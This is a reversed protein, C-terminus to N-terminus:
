HLAMFIPAIININVCDHGRPRCPVAGLLHQSEPQVGPQFNLTMHLDWLEGLIAVDELYRAIVKPLIKCFLTNALLHKIGKSVRPHSISVWYAEQKRDLHLRTTIQIHDNM